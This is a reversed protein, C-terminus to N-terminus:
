PTEMRNNNVRRNLLLSITVRAHRQEDDTFDSHRNAAVTCLHMLDPDADALKTGCAERWLADIEEDTISDATFKM